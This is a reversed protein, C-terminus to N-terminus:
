RNIEIHVETGKEVLSSINLRSNSGYILQLRSNINVLAINNNKKEQVTDVDIINDGKKLADKILVLRENKIGAGNDIVSVKLFDENGKIIIRILLTNLYDAYGHHIANEILPQIIYKPVPYDIVTEDIDWYVELTDELRNKMITIYTKTFIIEEHLPIQQEENRLRFRILKGLEVIMDSIEFQDHQIAKMNISELTNFLFHPDMQAQLAKFESEANRQNIEYVKGVLYDIESLMGDYAVRLESIEDLSDYDSQQKTPFLLIKNKLINLPKLLYSAMYYSIPLSILICIALLLSLFRDFERVEKYLSDESILNIIKIGTKKSTNTLCISREGSNEDMVWSYNTKCKLFITSIQDGILPTNDSTLIQWNENNFQATIEKIYSPSFDIRIVGLEKQDFPDRLLRIFSLFEGNDKKYYDPSTEYHTIWGGKENKVQHLWDQNELFISDKVLYNDINSFVQGSETFIHIGYVQDKKFTISSLFLSVTNIHARKKYITTSDKNYERLINILEQNYLISISSRSADEMMLDLNYGLQIISNETKKVVEENNSTKFTRHVAIGVIVLLILVLCTFMIFIKNRLKM